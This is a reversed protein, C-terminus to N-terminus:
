RFSANITIIETIQLHGNEDALIEMKLMLDAKFKLLCQLEPGQDRLQTKYPRDRHTSSSTSLTLFVAKLTLFHTPSM